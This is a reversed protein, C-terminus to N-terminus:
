GLLSTKKKNKYYPSINWEQFYLLFNPDISMFFVMICVIAIKGLM